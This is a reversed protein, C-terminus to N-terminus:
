FHSDLKLYIRTKIELLRKTTLLDPTETWRWLQETNFHTLLLLVVEKNHPQIKKLCFMKWFSKLLHFGPFFSAPFFNVFNIFFLIPFMSVVFTLFTVCLWFIFFFPMPMPWEGNCLGRLPKKMKEVEILGFAGEKLQLLTAAFRLIVSTSLGGCVM